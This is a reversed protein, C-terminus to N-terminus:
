QASCGDAEITKNRRREVMIAITTYIGLLITVIMQSGHAVLAFAGAQERGIGYFVLGFIIAAHWPGIGGQVPIVMSISGLVFLVLAQSFDLGSMWDFARFCVYLQMLYGGWILVTYLVFQMKGEKMSLVSRFGDWMKHLSEKISNVWRNESKRVFLSVVALIVVAVAVYLWPSTLIGYIREQAQPYEALFRRLVGMQSCFVAVTLIAVTLTDALRDSMASGFVLSFSKKEHGAVYTCRWLEGFRPLVLNFAYMGFVANCLCGFSPVIGLSRLQLRWRLARFIFSSIGILLSVAIWFLNMDMQLISLIERMDFQSYLLWFIGLGLVLPLVYKAIYSLIKKM